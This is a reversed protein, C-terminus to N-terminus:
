EAQEEELWTLRHEWDVAKGNVIRIALLLDDRPVLKDLDCELFARARELVRQMKKGVAQFRVWEDEAQKLKRELEVVKSIMETQWRRFEDIDAFGLDTAVEQESVIEGNLDYKSM